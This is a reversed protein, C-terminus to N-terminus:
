VGPEAATRHAIHLQEEGGIYVFTEVSAEGCIEKMSAGGVDEREVGGFSNAFRDAHHFLDIVVAETDCAQMLKGIAVSETEEVTLM